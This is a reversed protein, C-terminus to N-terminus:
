KQGQHQQQQTDGDRSDPGSYGDQDRGKDRDEARAKDKDLTSQAADRESAPNNENKAINTLIHPPIFGGPRKGSMITEEKSINLPIAIAQLAQQSPSNKSLPPIITPVLPVHTQLLPSPSNINSAAM